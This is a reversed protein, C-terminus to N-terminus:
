PMGLFRFEKIGILGGGDPNANPVKLITVHAKGQCWKSAGLLGDYSDFSFSM